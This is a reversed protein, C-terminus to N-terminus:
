LDLDKMTKEESSERSKPPLIQGGAPPAAGPVTDGSAQSGQPLDAGPGVSPSATTPQHRLKSLASGRTSHEVPAADEAVSEQGEPKEKEGLAYSKYLNGDFYVKFENTGNMRVSTGAVFDITRAEHPGLPAVFEDVVKQDRTWIVHKGASDVLEVKVTLTNIPIDGPNWLEGHIRPLRTSPDLGVSVGRLTVTPVSSTPDFTKAQQLYGYGADTDGQDLLEKGRRTLLSSLRRKYAPNHTSYKIALRLQDIALDLQGTREYLESAMEYNKANQAISNLKSLYALAKQDENNAAYNSAMKQYITALRADAESFRSGERLDRVEEWCRLALALNGNRLAEDGWLADLDALEAKKGPVNNKALPRLLDLAKEYKGERRYYNALDSALQPEEVVGAGLQQAQSISDWAKDVQDIGVYARALALYVKPDKPRLGAAQELTHVAFAYQGNALERKGQVFLREDDPQKTLFFITAGASVLLVVLSVMIGLVTPVRSQAGLGLNKSRRLSKPLEEENMQPRELTEVPMGKGELSDDGPPVDKLSAGCSVCREYQTPHYLGCGPCKMHENDMCFAACGG